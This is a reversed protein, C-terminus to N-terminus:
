DESGEPLVPVACGHHAAPRTAFAALAHKMPWTSATPRGDADDARILYLVSEARTPLHGRGLLREQGAM